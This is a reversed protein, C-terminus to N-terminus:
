MTRLAQMLSQHGHQAKIGLIGQGEYLPAMCSATLLHHRHPSFLDNNCCAIMPFEGFVPLSNKKVMVNPNVASLCLHPSPDFSQYRTFGLIAPLHINMGSFMYRYTNVWVWTISTSWQPDLDVFWGTVLTCAGPVTDCGPRPHHHISLNLLGVSPNLHEATSPLTPITHSLSPWVTWVNRHSWFGVSDWWLKSSIMHQSIPIPWYRYICIKLPIFM